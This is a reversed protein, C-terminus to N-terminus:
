MALFYKRRPRTKSGTDEAKTLTITQVDRMRSIYVRLTSLPYREKGFARECERKIDGLFMAGAIVIPRLASNQSDAPFKAGNNELIFRMLDEIGAIDNKADVYHTYFNVKVEGTSLVNNLDRSTDVITEAMEAVMTKTESKMTQRENHHIQWHYAVKALNKKFFHLSKSLFLKM